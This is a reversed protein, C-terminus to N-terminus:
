TNGQQGRESSHLTKMQEELVGLRTALMVDIRGISEKISKLDGREEEARLELTAVRQTLKGINMAFGVVALLFTLFSFLDKPEIHM